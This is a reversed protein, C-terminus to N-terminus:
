GEVPGDGIRENETAEPCPRLFRAMGYRERIKLTREVRLLLLPPFGGRTAAFSAGKRPGAEGWEQPLRGRRARGEDILWKGLLGRRTIM